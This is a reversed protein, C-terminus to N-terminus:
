LNEQDAAWNAPNNWIYHRIRELAEDSRVIHEYYNRQWVRKYFREWGQEKVGNIYANTTMTKFWQMTRGLPVPTQICYQQYAYWDPNPLIDSGVPTPYDQLVIVFHCHNPMLIFADLTVYAFKEPLKRWYKIVMEGAPNLRMRGKVVQGFLQERNQAVLTVFYAGAQSYDYGRLRISRRQHRAPDYRSM